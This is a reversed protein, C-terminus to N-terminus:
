KERNRWVSAEIYPHVTGLGKKFSQYIEEPSYGGYIFANAYNELNARSITLTVNNNLKKLESKLNSLAKTKNEASIPVLKSYSSQSLKNSAKKDENVLPGYGGRIETLDEYGDGDTDVKDSATGYLSEQYNSLGDDDPDLVYDTATLVPNTNVVNNGTAVTSFNIVQEFVNDAENTEKIQNESDVVLKFKHAEAKDFIWRNSGGVVYSLGKSLTNTNLGTSVLKDDLYIKFWFSTSMDGQSDNKINPLILFPENIKPLSTLESLNEPNYFKFNTVVLNPTQNLTGCTETKDAPKSTSCLNDAVKVGSNNQCEYSKSKVGNASCSSWNSALNWAYTVTTPDDTGDSGGPNNGSTTPLNLQFSKYSSSISYDFYAFYTISVKKNTSDVIVDTDNIAKIANIEADTFTKTCTIETEASKALINELATGCLMYDEIPNALQIKFQLAKDKALDASSNNTLITKFTVTKGDTAVTAVPDTLSVGTISTAKDTPKTLNFEGAESYASSNLYAIYKVTIQNGALSVNGESVDVFGAILNIREVNPYDVPCSITKTSNNTIEGTTTDCLLYDEVTASDKLPIKFQLVTNVALDSGSKNTLTTKFEVKGGSVLGIGPKSLSIGTTSPINPTVSDSPKTLQFENKGSYNSSNLYAIYKVTILNGNIAINGGSVDAYGALLNIIDASPYNVPCSIIKSGSGNNKKIIEDGSNTECFVYDETPNNLGIKFVLNTNALLDANSNNILTTKFEVKGGSVIGMVPKSLFIDGESEGKELITYEFNIESCDSFNGSASDCARITLKHYGISLNTFQYIYPNNRDTKASLLASGLQNNDLVYSVSSSKDINYKIELSNITGSSSAWTPSVATIQPTLEGDIFAAEAQTLYFFPALILISGMVLFFIKKSNKM